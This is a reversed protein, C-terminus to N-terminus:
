MLKGGLRSYIDDPLGLLQIIKHQVDTLPPPHIFSEGRLDIFTLTLDSFARLIREATPTQTTKQPQEPYLGALDTSTTKLQRRVVFEILTLVRLALTLLHILGIVQDDRQVFLPTLSLAVGKLRGFGREVIWEDRYTSIVTKLTLREPPANTVYARWGCRLLHQAIRDSDPVVETIVYRSKPLTQCEYEYSLFESVRHQNLIADAKQKLELEDVIQRKGPGPDPTLKMLKETATEIRKLLGREQQAGYVPSYVVFVREEWRVVAGAVITELWRRQEYGELVIRDEERDGPLEIQELAVAGTVAAEIWSELLEPVKGTQSLPSLYYDGQAALYGRTGIASLKCDGVYLLKRQAIATRIQAIAPIYLGDDSQEGSVVQTALPFGLPDLVGMMVKVQALSPDDKSHGFQFLGDENVLHYGSVTTADLRLTDVELKYARITQASIGTEIAQWTSGESLRRLLIGLRDDSFDTDRLTIGCVQELSYRRHNVWEQVRVKRHDGQSVIYSLWIVAVWGLDLGTQNWHRPLYQNLLDPLGMNIMVQLLVIVDDVRETTVQIASDMPDKQVCSLESYCGEAFAKRM